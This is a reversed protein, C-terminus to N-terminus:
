NWENMCKTENIWENTRENMWQSMWENLGIMGNRREDMWENGENMRARLLCFCLRLVFLARACVCMCACSLCLPRVMLFVPALCFLRAGFLFVHRLFFLARACVCICACSSDFRACLCFYPRLVFWACAGFLFVPALFFARPCLNRLFYFCKRVVQAFLLTM